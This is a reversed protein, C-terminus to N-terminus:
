EAGGMFLPLQENSQFGQAIASLDSLEVARVGARTIWRDVRDYSKKAPDDSLSTPRQIVCLGDADLRDLAFLFYGTDKEVRSWDRDSAAFSQAHIATVSDRDRSAIADLLFDDIYQGRRIPAGSHRFTDIVKDLLQSKALGPRRGVKQAVLGKYLASLTRDAGRALDAPMPPEVTLSGNARSSMELLREFASEEGGLRRALGVLASDLIGQERLRASLQSAPLHKVAAYDGSSSVLAIGVNRGEDRAAGARYRILFYHGRRTILSAADM